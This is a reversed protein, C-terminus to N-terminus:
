RRYDSRASADAGGFLNSSPGGAGTLPVRVRTNAQQRVQDIARIGRLTALQEIPNTSTMMPMMAANRQANYRAALHEMASAIIAKPNLYDMASQMRPAWNLDDIAERLPTTQSGFQSKYTRHIAHEAAITRQLQAATEDGLVRRLMQQAAPLRLEATLDHTAQKNNIVKDMLARVLGVRFLEMSHEAAAREPSGAAARAATREAAVFADLQERSGTNLRTSMRSGAELAAEATKGQAWLRDAAAWQPNTRAVESTLDDRLQTLSRAVNNRGSRVAEGILDSLNQRADMFQQLSQPPAPPAGIVPVERELSQIGAMVSEPVPGRLGNVRATYANMIPQLDFPMEAAFAAGYARQGAAQLAESHRTAVGDFDSSGITREFASQLRGGSGVQRELLQEKAISSAEGPTAAAARMTMQTNDGSGLRVQSARDVLNMQTAQTDFTDLVRQVAARGPGQNGMSAAIDAASHGAQAMEVIQEVHADTTRPRAQGAAVRGYAAGAQPLEARIAAEIADPAIRDRELGRQIALYAGQSADNTELQSAARAGAVGQVAQGVYHAPVGIAGGLVAGAAGGAAAGMARKGAAELYGGEPNVDAHGAGSLAGQVAGVKIGQGVAGALTDTVAPNILRGAVARAAGFGRAGAVAPAAPGAAIMPVLGGTMEGAFHTWPNEKRSMERRGKDFGLQDDFGFTAGEVTGRAFSEILGPKPGNAGTGGLGSMVRQITGADTGDPFEMKAGTPGHEVTITM